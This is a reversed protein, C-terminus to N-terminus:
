FATPQQKLWRAFDEPSVVHLLARMAYHAYGCLQTCAIEYTGVRTPIFWIPITLGPMVDQKVRLNPSSFGHIVDKSRLLLQAPRGVPLYFVGLAEVDDQAAPDKADLGLPNDLTILRPDTRGFVGDKGPYRFNWAFQEATVEVTVADRPAPTGYVARWVPLALALVGGETVLTTIVVPILAWWWETRVNALRFTVQDARSFRWIFWGLVLHGTLLLGGTVVLLYRIMRDIGAGHVSGLAPLWRKSGVAIAAVVIVWVM